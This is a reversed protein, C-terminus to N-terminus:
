RQRLEIRDLVDQRHLSDEAIRVLGVTDRDDGHGRNATPTPSTAAFAGSGRRLSRAGAGSQPEPDVNPRDTDEGDLVAGDDPRRGNVHHPDHESALQDGERPDESKTADKPVTPTMPAS